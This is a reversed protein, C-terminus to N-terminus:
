EVPGLDKWVTPTAPGPAWTGAREAGHAILCEWYKGDKSCVDAVAYNTDKHWPGRWKAGWRDEPTEPAPEGGVPGMDEWIAYSAESPEWGSHTIHEQKAKWVRENHKRLDGVLVLQGIAWPIYDGPEPEPDERVWAHGGDAGPEWFNNSVVSRWRIENHMVPYDVIYGIGGPEPQVWPPPNEEDVKGDRALLFARSMSEVYIAASELTQRNRLVTQATSIVTEIESNTFPELDEVLTSLDIM